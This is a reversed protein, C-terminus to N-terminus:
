AFSKIRRNKSQKLHGPWSAWQATGVQPLMVRDRLRESPSERERQKETEMRKETREYNKDESKKM